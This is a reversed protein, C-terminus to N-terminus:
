VNFFYFNLIIMFRSSETQNLSMTCQPASDRTLTINSLFVEAKLKESTGQEDTDDVWLLSRGSNKM